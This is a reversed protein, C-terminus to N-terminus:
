RQQGGGGRSSPQLEGLLGPPPPGLLRFIRDFTVAVEYAAPATEPRISLDMLSSRSTGSGESSDAIGAGEKVRQIAAALVEERHVADTSDQFNRQLEERMQESRVLADKLALYEEQNRDKESQAVRLERRLNELQHRLLSVARSDPRRMLGAEEGRKLEAKSRELETTLEALREQLFNFQERRASLAREATERELEAARLDEHAQRLRSGLGSTAAMANKHLTRIYSLETETISRGSQENANKLLEAVFDWPPISRGNLYRAIYSADTHTRVAYRRISIGLVDFNKRLEEAFVTVESPVGEAPDDVRGAVHVGWRGQVVTIM